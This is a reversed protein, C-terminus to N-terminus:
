TALEPTHDKTACVNTHDNIWARAINRGKLQFNVYSM